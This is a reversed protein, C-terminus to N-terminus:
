LLGVLTGQATRLDPQDPYCKNADRKVIPYTSTRELKELEAYIEPMGRAEVLKKVNKNKRVQSPPVQSIIFMWKLERRRHAEM